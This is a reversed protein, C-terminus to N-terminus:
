KRTFNFALFERHVERRSVTYMLQFFCAKILFAPANQFERSSICTLNCCCGFADVPRASLVCRHSNWEGTAAYVSAARHLKWFRRPKRIAHIRCLICPKKSKRGLSKISEFLEVQFLFILFFLFFYIFLCLGMADQFYQIQAWIYRKREKGKEGILVQIRLLLLTLTYFYGPRKLSGIVQVRNTTKLRNSLENRVLHLNGLSGSQQGGTLLINLRLCSGLFPTISLTMVSFSDLLLSSGNYGVSTMVGFVTLSQVGSVKGFAFSAALASLVHM